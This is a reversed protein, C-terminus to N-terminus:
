SIAKAVIFGNIQVAQALQKQLRQAEVRKKANGVVVKYYVVGNKGPVKNYQASYGKNKLKTVLAIANSHIAFTALQVEYTNKATPASKVAIVRKKVLLSSKSSQIQPNILASNPKISPLESVTDSAKPPAVINPASELKATQVLLSSAAKKAVNLTERKIDMQLSTNPASKSSLPEAKALTSVSPAPKDVTPIVVRAVKVAQFLADPERVSVKPLSPKPPLKVSLSVTDELRRQSKKLIAPAFVVGVSLIVAIGVLRHKVKEEIVVKM